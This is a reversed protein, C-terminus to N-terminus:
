EKPSVAVGSKMARIEALNATRRHTPGLAITYVRVARQAYVIAGNIDGKAKLVQGINNAALAVQPNLTSKGGLRYM